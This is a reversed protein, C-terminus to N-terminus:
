LKLKSDVFYKSCGDCPRSNCGCAMARHTHMSQPEAESYIEKRSLTAPFSYRVQPLDEDPTKFSLVQLGVGGLQPARADAGVDLSEKGKRLNLRRRYQLKKMSGNCSSELGNYSGCEASM